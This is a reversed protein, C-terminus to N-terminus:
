YKLEDIMRRKAFDHGSVVGHVYKETTAVPIDRWGFKRKAENAIMAPSISPPPVSTRYAVIDRVSPQKGRNPWKASATKLDDPEVDNEDGNDNENQGPTETEPKLIETEPKRVGKAALFDSLLAKPSAM